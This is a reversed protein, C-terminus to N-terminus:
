AALCKRTVVVAALLHTSFFGVQLARVQWAWRLRRVVELLAAILAGAATWLWLDGILRLLQRSVLFGVFGSVVPQM